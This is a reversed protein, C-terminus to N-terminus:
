PVTRSVLYPCIWEGILLLGQPKRRACSARQLPFLLCGKPTDPFYLYRDRREAQTGLRGGLAQKFPLPFDILGM